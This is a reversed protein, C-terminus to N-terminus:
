KYKRHVKFAGDYDKVFLQCCELDYAFKMQIRSYIKKSSFLNM